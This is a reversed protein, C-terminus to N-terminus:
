SRPSGSGNGDGMTLHAKRQAQQHLSYGLVESVDEKAIESAFNQIM